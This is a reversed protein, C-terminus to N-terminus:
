AGVGELASEANPKWKLLCRRRDRTVRPSSEARVPRRLRRDKRIHRGTQALLERGVRQRMWWSAVM